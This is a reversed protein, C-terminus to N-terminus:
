ARAPRRRLHLHQRAAPRAPRHPRPGVVTRAVPTATATVYGDQEVSAVTPDQSLDAAQEPTMARHLGRAGELLHAGRARRPPHQAGVRGRGFCSPQTHLTVIYQAPVPDPSAEVGGADSGSRQAVAPVVLRAVLGAVAAMTVMFKRM